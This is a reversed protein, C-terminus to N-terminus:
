EGVLALISKPLVFVFDRELARDLAAIKAKWNGQRSFMILGFIVGGGSAARDIDDVPPMPLHAVLDRTIQALVANAGAQLAVEALLRPWGCAADFPPFVRDTVNGIFAASVCYVFAYAFPEWMKTLYKIADRLLDPRLNRRSSNDIQKSGVLCAVIVVVFFALTDPTSIGSHPPEAIKAKKALACPVALLMLARM